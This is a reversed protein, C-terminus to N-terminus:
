RFLNKLEGLGNDQLARTLRLCSECTGCMKAGSEYCSWLLEFPFKQHGLSAVIESKKLHVAPAVVCVGNLTSYSFSQNLADVFETTNDPFTAGEEANFGVYVQTAGQAEALAAAVNIFVGNRNPVWIAKASETTAIKDDLETIKLQPPTKEANFFPHDKLTNLFPLEIVRHPVQFFKSQRKAAAIENQAARQGYDFTLACLVDSDNKAVTMSLASDLGGSLLIISKAIM